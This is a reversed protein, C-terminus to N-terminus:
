ESRAVIREGMHRQLWRKVARRSNHGRHRIAVVERTRDKSIRVRRVGFGCAGTGVPRHEYTTGRGYWSRNPQNMAVMIRAALEPTLIPADTLMRDIDAIMDPIWERRADDDGLLDAKAWSVEGVWVNDRPTGRWGFLTSELEYHDDWSLMTGDAVQQADHPDDPDVDGYTVARDLRALMALMDPDDPLAYLYLDAAMTNEKNNISTRCDYWLDLRAEADRHPGGM